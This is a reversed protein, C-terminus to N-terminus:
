HDRVKQYIRPLISFNNNCVKIAAMLLDLFELMFRIINRQNAIPILKKLNYSLLKISMSRITNINLDRLSYKGRVFNDSCNFCWYYWKSTNNWKPVFINWPPLIQTWYLPRWSTSGKNKFKYLHIWVILLYDRKFHFGWLPYLCSFYGNIYTTYLTFTNSSFLNGLIRICDWLARITKSKNSWVIMINLCLPAVTPLSIDCTLFNFFALSDSSIWYFFSLLPFINIEKFTFLTFSILLTLKM